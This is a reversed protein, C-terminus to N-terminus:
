NCNSLSPSLLLIQSVCCAANKISKFFGLSFLIERKQIVWDYLTIGCVEFTLM